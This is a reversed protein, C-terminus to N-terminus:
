KRFWTSLERCAHQVQCTRVSNSSQREDTSRNKAIVEASLKQWHYLSRRRWQGSDTPSKAAKQLCKFIVSILLFKWKSKMHYQMKELIIYIYIYIYIYTYLSFIEVVSVKAVMVGYKLIRSILCVFAEYFCSKQTSNAQCIYHLVGGVTWIDWLVLWM